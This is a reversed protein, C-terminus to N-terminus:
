SSENKHKLRAELTPIAAKAEPGIRGLIECFNDDQAPMKGSKLLEVIPGVAPKGIDILALRADWSTINDRYTELTQIIALVARDSESALNGLCKIAFYRVRYDRNDLQTILPGIADKPLKNGLKALQQIAGFQVMPDKSQLKAVLDDASKPGGMCLLS